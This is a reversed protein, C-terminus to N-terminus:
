CLFMPTYAIGALIECIEEFKGFEGENQRMFNQCIGSIQIKASKRDFYRFKFDM